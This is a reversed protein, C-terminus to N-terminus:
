PFIKLYEMIVEKQLRFSEKNLNAGKFNQCQKDATSVLLAV